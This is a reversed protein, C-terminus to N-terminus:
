GNARSHRAPLAEARDFAPGLLKGCAAIAADERSMAARIEAALEDWEARLTPVHTDPMQLAVKAIIGVLEDKTPTQPKSNILTHIEAAAAAIAPNSGTEATPLAPSAKAM